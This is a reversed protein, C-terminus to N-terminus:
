LQTTLFLFPASVFSSSSFRFPSSHTPPAPHLSRSPFSLLSFFPSFLRHLTPTLFTDLPQLPQPIEPTNICPLSCLQNPTRVPVQLMNIIRQKERAHFGKSPLFCVVFLLCVILCVILCVVFLEFSFTALFLSFISKHPSSSM